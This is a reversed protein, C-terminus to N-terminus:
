ALAALLRQAPNLPVADHECGIERVLDNWAVDRLPEVEATDSERAKDLAVRLAAADMGRADTRLKAYRRVDSENAAAKDAPRIALLAAAALALAAAGAASVSPPLQMGLPLLAASGGAIAVFTGVAQLRRYLRATRQCLREAYRIENLLIAREDSMPIVKKITGAAALATATAQPATTGAGPATARTIKAPSGPTHANSESRLNRGM